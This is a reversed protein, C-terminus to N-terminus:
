GQRSGGKSQGPRCSRGEHRRLLARERGHSPIVLLGQKSVLLSAWRYNRGANALLVLSRGYVSLNYNLSQDPCTGLKHTRDGTPVRALPLGETNREWMSTERGRERGGKGERQFWYAHGWTLILIKQQYKLRFWMVNIPLQPSNLDNYIKRDLFM